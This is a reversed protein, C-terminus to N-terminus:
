AVLAVDEVVQGRISIGAKFQLEDNDAAAIKARFGVEVPYIDVLDGVAWATDVHVGWRAVLYGQAGPELTVYALSVAAAMDQPDYVGVLDAITRTVAGNRERVQRSCMRRLQAKDVTADPSFTQTLLCELTVTSGALIETSLDPAATSAITEVWKLSVTENSAVGDLVTPSM